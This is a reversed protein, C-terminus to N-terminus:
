KVGFVEHEKLFVRGRFSTILFRSYRFSTLKQTINSIYRVTKINM